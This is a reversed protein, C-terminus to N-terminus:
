REAPWKLMLECEADMAFVCTVECRLPLSFGEICVFLPQRASSMKGFLCKASDCMRM